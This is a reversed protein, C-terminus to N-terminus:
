VAIGHELRAFHFSGAKPLRELVADEYIDVFLPLKVVNFAEIGGIV